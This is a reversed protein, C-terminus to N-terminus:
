RYRQLCLGKSLMVPRQGFVWERTKNSGYVGSVICLHTYLSLNMTDKLVWLELCLKTSYILRRARHTTLPEFHDILMSTCKSERKERGLRGNALGLSCSPSLSCGVSSLVGVPSKLTPTGKSSTSDLQNGQSDSQLCAAERGRERSEITALMENSYINFRICFVVFFM